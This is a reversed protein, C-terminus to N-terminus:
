HLMVLLDKLLHARNGAKRLASHVDSKSEYNVMNKYTNHTHTNTIVVCKIVHSINM